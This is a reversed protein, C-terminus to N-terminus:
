HCDTRTASPGWGACPCHSLPAIASLGLSSICCERECGDGAQDGALSGKMKGGGQRAGAERVRLRAIPTRIRFENGETGAESQSPPFSASDLIPRM